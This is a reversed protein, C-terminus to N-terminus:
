LLSKPQLSRRAPEILRYRNGVQIHTRAVEGAALELVARCGRMPLCVRWPRVNQFVRLVEGKRSFYVVDIAFRMGGTHVGNCPELWLGSGSPLETRGLLGLACQLRGGAIEVNPVVPANNITLCLTKTPKLMPLYSRSNPLAGGRM